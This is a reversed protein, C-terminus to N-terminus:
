LQYVFRVLYRVSEKFYLYSTIYILCLGNYSAESNDLYNSHFYQYTNDQVNQIDGYIIIAVLLVDLIIAREIVILSATMQLLTHIMM